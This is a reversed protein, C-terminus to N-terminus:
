RLCSDNQNIKFETLCEGQRQIIVVKQFARIQYWTFTWMELLLFLWTYIMTSKVFLPTINGLFVCSVYEHFSDTAYIRSKHKYNSFVVKWCCHTKNSPVSEFVLSDNNRSNTFYDATLDLLMEKLHSKQITVIRVNTM